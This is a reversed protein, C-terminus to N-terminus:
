PGKFSTEIKEPTLLDNKETSVNKWFSSTYASTKTQPSETIILTMEEKIAENSSNSGANNTLNKKFEQLKQQKDLASELFSELQKNINEFDDSIPILEEYINVLKQFGNLSQEFSNLMITNIKEILKKAYNSFLIRNREKFEHIVLEKLEFDKFLYKRGSKFSLMCDLFKSTEQKAEVTNLYAIFSPNELAVKTLQDRRSLLKTIFKDKKNNGDTLFDVFSLIFSDPILCIKLMALNVDNRFEPSSSLNPSVIFSGAHRKGSKVIDLWNNPQSDVPFPLQDIAAASLNFQRQENGSFCLGGDVKIVRNQNDLGCNYFRLDDEEVYQAVVLIQGLGIKAQKRFNLESTNFNEVEESLIYYIGNSEDCALRTEPQYPIVLRFFEQAIVELIASDFSGVEKCFWVKKSGKFTGKFVDHANKSSPPIHTTATFDQFKFIPM